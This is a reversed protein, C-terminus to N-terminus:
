FGILNNKIVAYTKPAMLKVCAIFGDPKVDPVLRAFARWKKDQEKLVAIFAADSVAHRDKCLSEVEDIFQRAIGILTQASDSGEALRTQYYEAYEKAKM